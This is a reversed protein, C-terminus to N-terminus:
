ASEDHDDGEGAHYAHFTPMANRVHFVTRPRGGDSPIKIMTILNAALLQDLAASTRTAKQHRGLLNYIAERDLGDGGANRVADLISDAVPDGLRDGFISRASAEAYAWLAVAAQLHPLRIVPSCDLVAYLAQLRLVHAEARGIVAGLLGPKGESLPGYIRRGFAAADEDRTIPETHRTAVELADHLRHVLPAFDPMGGGDPLLKSRRSCLWLFRNAFGNAAETESLYRQLDASTGHALISIHAGTAKIPNNKTLIRLDGGDWAQRVMTSLINGERTMVKLTGAFEEEVVLLRKDTVGDGQPMGRVVAGSDDRVAFLLGEGSSLGSVIHSQKWETDVRDFLEKVPPLSTGKRGKATDGIIGFFENLGHRSAGVKTHPVPGVVNGFCILVSALVAAPDAETCPDIARVIDGALGYLAARSLTPWEPRTTEAVESRRVPHLTTDLPRQASSIPQPLSIPATLREHVADLLTRATQPRHCSCRHDSTGDPWGIWGGCSICTTSTAM